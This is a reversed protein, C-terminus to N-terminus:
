CLKSSEPHAHRDESDSLSNLLRALPPTTIADLMMPRIDQPEVNQVGQEAFFRCVDEDSVYGKDALRGRKEEYEREAKEDWLWKRIPRYM